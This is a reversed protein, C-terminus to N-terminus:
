FIPQTKKQKSKKKKGRQRKKKCLGARMLLCIVAKLESSIVTVGVRCILLRQDVSQNLMEHHGYEENIIAPFQSLKKFGRICNRYLSDKKKKSASAKKLPFIIMTQPCQYM